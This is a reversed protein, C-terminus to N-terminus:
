RVRWTAADRWGRLLRAYEGDAAALEGPTGAEVIRGGSMVVVRDAVALMAPRHTVVVTTYDDRVRGVTEVVARESASDLASTAEDVLLIRAPKALARAIGVRQREGGSLRAGLDGAPTGWGQPAAALLPDLRADGAIRDLDADTLEPNVALLNEKLTGANLVTRQFAATSAGRLEAPGAPAGDLTIQGADPGTLGALTRLLTTKGSGSAGIVVTVTGPAAVLDVDRLGTTGDGFRVGVGSLRLEPAHDTCPVPRVPETAVVEAALDITRSLNGLGGSMESVVTIQEIVRLLVIVMTAATVPNLQGNDYGVWVVVGFGLLVAQIVLGYLFEGPIQWFLLRLARGRSDAVARDVLRAGAGVQRATRLSPQARAFEFLRSDMEGSAEEFQRDARKELRGSGWLAALALVGGVVTVLGAPVHIFLLGIGLAFTYIVATILPQIMLVVGSTAETAGQSVLRRLDAATTDTIRGAPWALVADPTRRQIQRMVGLGLDLGRHASLIDVAWCVAILAVLLVVWPWASAPDDGFLDRFLPFLVIVAAAQLVASATVLLLYIRVLRDAGAVTRFRTLM